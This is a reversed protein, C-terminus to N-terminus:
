RPWESPVMVIIMAIGLVCFTVISILQNLNITEMM